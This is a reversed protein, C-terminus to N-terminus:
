LGHDVMDILQRATQCASHRDLERLPGDILLTALGHVSSWALLGARERREASLAGAEAMQDLVSTLLQFATRGTRGARGPDTALRMDDPVSIATRFLGPEDLAFQVYALGLARLRARAASIPEPDPPLLTLGHEMAMAMSSQAVACVAELLARRDAFHRYAANPAVGVRRTVERLVVADPGGDRALEVASDVLARRLDGHRYTVRKASAAPRAPM